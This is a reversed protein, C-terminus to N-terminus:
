IQSKKNLNVDANVILINPVKWTYLLLGKLKPVFEMGTKTKKPQYQMDKLANIEIIM